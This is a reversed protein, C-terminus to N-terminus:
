LRRVRHRMGGTTTRGRNSRRRGTAASPPLLHDIRPRESPETSDVALPLSQDSRDLRPDAPMASVHRVAGVHDAPLDSLPHREQSSASMAPLHRDALLHAPVACVNDRRHVTSDSENPSFGDLRKADSRGGEIEGRESIHASGRDCERYRGPEREVALELHLDLV